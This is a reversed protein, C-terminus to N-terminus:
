RSEQRSGRMAAVDRYFAAWRAAVAPAGFERAVLEHGRRGMARAEDLDSLVHILGRALAEPTQPVWYGCKVTDLMPWPCTRTVVAPVSAILAEAVSMGFSESDSCLVLTTAGSVLGAKRRGDVEGCWHVNAAIPAFLPEVRARHGREDPGAIVLHAAPVSARVLAFAAALLDLRKIPHIRGLFLVYPAGAPVGASQRAELRAAEDVTVPEVSNPIEAIPKDHDRLRLAEAEAHSTAHWAAAGHLARRDFLQWSARKRWRHHALAAPELMGRPSVISPVGAARAISAGMWVTRNFLGHIHILDADVAALGLARRMSTAGLLAAPASVPFYSVPVGEVDVGEPHAPLRAGANATTTFVDVAMGAQRQARCLALLSRPPGGFGYAPAFYATVHLVRM